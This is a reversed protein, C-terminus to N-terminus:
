KTETSSPHNCIHTPVKNKTVMKRYVIDCHFVFLSVSHALLFYPPSSRIPSGDQYQDSTRSHPAPVTFM